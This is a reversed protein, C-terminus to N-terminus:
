YSYWVRVCSLAEMLHADDCRCGDVDEKVFVWTAQLRPFAMLGVVAALMPFSLALRGRVVSANL